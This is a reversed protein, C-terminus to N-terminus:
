ILGDMMEIVMQGTEIDVSKVIDPIAPILYEQKEGKVVYVDNAGTELVSDITGLSQGQITVVQLGIYQYLYYNGEPLPMAEEIPIQVLLGRLTEAENRDTITEFHILLRKKHWRYSKLKYPEAQYEDGLYFSETTDFREPFDTLIEMSVEGHLGHPKVIRGVALYRFEPQRSGSDHPSSNSQPSPTPGSM